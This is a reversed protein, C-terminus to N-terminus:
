CAPLLSWSRKYHVSCSMVVFQGVCTELIGGVKISAVFFFRHIVQKIYLYLSVKGTKTYLIDDLFTYM